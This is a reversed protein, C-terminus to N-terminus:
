LLNKLIFLLKKKIIKILDFLCKLIRLIFHSIFIICIIRDFEDILIYSYEIEEKSFRISIYKDSCLFVYLFYYSHLFIIIIFIMILYNKEKFISYLFNEKFNHAVIRCLDENDKKNKSKNVYKIIRDSTGKETINTINNNDEVEKNNKGFEINNDKICDIICFILGLIIFTIIFAWCFIFSICINLRFCMKYCKFYKKNGNELLKYLSEVM